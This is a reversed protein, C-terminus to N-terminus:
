FATVPCAGRVAEKDPQQAAASLMLAIALIILNRM